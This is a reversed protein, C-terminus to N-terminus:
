APFGSTRRAPTGARSEHARVRRGLLRPHDAPLTAHHSVVPERRPRGALAMRRHCLASGSECAWAGALHAVATDPTIVLDLHTMIAATEMFDRGRRGPLEIVPFPRDAAKLQDLGDTTQLSILRVGPLAALPAFSALPFSRWRDMPHSPNGQWAIGILFPKTAAPRSDGTRAFATEATLASLRQWWPGGTTSSSKISSWIRCRLRCRRSRRASSPRCASCRPM